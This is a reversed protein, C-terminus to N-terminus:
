LFFWDFFEAAVTFVKDAVSCGVTIVAACAEALYDLVFHFVTLENIRVRNLDEGVHVAAIVSKYM